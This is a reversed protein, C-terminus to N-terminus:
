EDFWWSDKPKETPYTWAIFTIVALFAAVGALIKIMATDRKKLKKLEHSTFGILM